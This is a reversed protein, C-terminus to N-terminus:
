ENDITINNDKNNNINDKYIIETEPMDDIKDALKKIIDMKSNKVDEEMSEKIENLQTKQGTGKNSNAKGFLNIMQSEFFERKKKKAELNDKLEPRLVTNKLGGGGLISSRLNKVNIISDSQVNNLISQQVM